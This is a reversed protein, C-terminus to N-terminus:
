DTVVVDPRTRVTKGQISGLENGFIREAHEVDKITINVSPLLSNKIIAVFDAYSPQGIMECLNRACNAAEIQRPTFLQSNEKINQM